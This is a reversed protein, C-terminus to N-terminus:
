RGLLDDINISNLQKKCWEFKSRIENKTFIETGESVQKLVISIKYLKDGVSENNEKLLDILKM